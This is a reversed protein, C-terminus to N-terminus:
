CYVLVYPNLPTANNINQIKNIWASTLEKDKAIIMVGSTNYIDKALVAGPQLEALLIEREGRPLETVPVAKAVAELAKPDFMKGVQSQAEHM